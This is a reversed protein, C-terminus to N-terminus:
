GDSGERKGAQPSGKSFANILAGRINDAEAKTSCEARVYGEVLLVWPRARAPEEKVSIWRRPDDIIAIM